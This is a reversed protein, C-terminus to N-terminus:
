RSQVVRVGDDNVTVMPTRMARAIGVHDPDLHHGPPVRPKRGQRNGGLTADVYIRVWSPDRHCSYPSSAYTVSLVPADRLSELAAACEEPLGILRIKM